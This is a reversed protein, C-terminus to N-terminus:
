GFFEAIDGKGVLCVHLGEGLGVQGGYFLYVVKQGGDSVQLVLHAFEGSARRAGDAVVVVIAVGASATGFLQLAFHVQIYNICIACSCVAPKM